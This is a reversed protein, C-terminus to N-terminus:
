AKDGEGEVVILDRSRQSGGGCTCFFDKDVPSGDCRWPANRVQVRNLSASDAATAVAHAGSRCAPGIPAAGRLHLYSIFIRSSTEAAIAAMTTVTGAVTLKAFSLVTMTPPAAIYGLLVM